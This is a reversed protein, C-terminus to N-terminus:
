PVYSLNSNASLAPHNKVRKVNLSGGIVIWRGSQCCESYYTVKIMGKGQRLSNRVLPVSEYNDQKKSGRIIMEFVTSENTFLPVEPQRQDM